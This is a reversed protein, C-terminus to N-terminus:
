YDKTTRIQTCFYCFFSLQCFMEMMKKAEMDINFSTCRKSGTMHM